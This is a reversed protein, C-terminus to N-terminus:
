QPLAKAAARHHTDKLSRLVSPTLMTLAMPAIKALQSAAPSFDRSEVACECRSFDSRKTPKPRRGYLPM